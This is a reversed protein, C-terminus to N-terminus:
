NAESSVLLPDTLGANSLASKTNQQLYNLFVKKPKELEAIPINKVGDPFDMALWTGKERETGWNSARSWDTGDPNVKYVRVAIQNLARARCIKFFCRTYVGYGRAYLGSDYEVEATFPELAIVVDLDHEAVFNNMEQLGATNKKDNKDRKDTDIYNVSGAERMKESPELRIVQYNKQSSLNEAIVLHATEEIGWDTDLEIYANQFITTGVHFQQPKEAITVIVGIKANDAINIPEQPVATACASLSILVLLGFFNKM